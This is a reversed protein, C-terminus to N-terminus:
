RLRIRITGVRQSRQGGNENVLLGIPVEQSGCAGIESFASCFVELSQTLQLQGNVISIQRRSKEHLITNGKALSGLQGTVQQQIGITTKGANGTVAM